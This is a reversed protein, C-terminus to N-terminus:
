KVKRQALTRWIEPEVEAIINKIQKKNKFSYKPRILDMTLKLEPNQTVIIAALINISINEPVDYM